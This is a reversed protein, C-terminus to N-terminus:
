SIPVNYLWLMKNGKILEKAAQSVESWEPGSLDFEGEKIRQMVTLASDTQSSDQFPARGSLM